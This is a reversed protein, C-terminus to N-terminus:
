PTGFLGAHVEISDVYQYMLETISSGINYTTDYKFGGLEGTDLDGLDAQTGADYSLNLPV